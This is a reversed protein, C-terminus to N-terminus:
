PRRTPETIRDCSANFDGLVIFDDESMFETKAWEVVDHLAGIEQVASEPRTHIGIILVFSFGGQRVRLPTLYPERQFMDQDSDDFLRDRAAGRRASTTSSRTNSRRHRTM